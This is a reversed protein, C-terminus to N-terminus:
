DVLLHLMSYAKEENVCAMILDLYEIAEHPLLGEMFFRFLPSHTGQMVDICQEVIKKQQEKTLEAAELIPFLNREEEIFHDRCNDQLTKLRASLSYLAERHTPSDTNMVGISKIDEKIGNMIPLDRAHEENVCRCVEPHHADLIPFLLCEEMRAHEQLVEVLMGYTKELKRVEMRTTGDVGEMGGLTVIEATLSGVREVQRRVSGHQLEVVRRMVVAGTERRTMLPPLPLMADAYRLIADATGSVTANHTEFRLTSSSSSSSSSPLFRLTTLPKFALAFRLYLTAAKTPDGHLTGLPPPSSPTPAIESPHKNTATTTASKKSSFCNGM